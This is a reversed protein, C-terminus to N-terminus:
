APPGRMLLLTSHPSVLQRFKVLLLAPHAGGHHPRTRRYPRLQHHCGRHSGGRRGRSKRGLRSCRGGHAFHGRIHARRRTPLSGLRPEVIESEDRTCPPWPIGCSNGTSSELRVALVCGAAASQLGDVLHEDARVDCLAKASSWASCGYSCCCCGRAIQVPRWPDCPDLHNVVQAAGACVSTFFHRNPDLGALLQSMFGGDEGGGALLFLGAWFAFQPNRHVHPWPHLSVPRQPSTQPRPRHHRLVRAPLKLVRRKIVQPVHTLPGAVAM